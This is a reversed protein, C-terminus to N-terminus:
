SKRKEWIACYYGVKRLLFHTGNEGTRNSVLENKPEIQVTTYHTVTASPAPSLQVRPGFIKLHKNTIKETQNNDNQIDPSLGWEKRAKGARGERQRQNSSRNSGDDTCLLLQL